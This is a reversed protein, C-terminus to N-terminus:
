VPQNGYEDVMFFPLDDFVIPNWLFQGYLALIALLLGILYALTHKMQM